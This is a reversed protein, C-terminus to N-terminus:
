IRFFSLLFYTIKESDLLRGNALTELSSMQIFQHLKINNKSFLQFCLHVYISSSILSRIAWRSPSKKRCGAEQTLSLVCFFNLDPQSYRCANNCPANDINITHSKVNQHIANIM